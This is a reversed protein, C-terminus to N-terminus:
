RLNAPELVILDRLVDMAGTEPMLDRLADRAGLDEEGIDKTHVPHQSYQRLRGGEASVATAAADSLTVVAAM